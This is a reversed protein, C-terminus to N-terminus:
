GIASTPAAAGNPAQTSPRRAVLGLREQVRRRLRAPLPSPWDLERALRRRHEKPLSRVWQYPRLTEDLSKSGFPPPEKMRRFDAEYVTTFCVTAKPSHAHSLRARKITEFYVTDCIPGLQRPMMTWRGLLPMARRTFLLCSTDVHTRGDNQVDDFMYSGDPRHMTRNSTCVIAKTAQHLLALTEIHNPHFWNDADLFAVADYGLAFASLAGLCRPTNGNDAHARPLKVHSVKWFDMQARPHGDSVFFHDCPCTQRLVSDHCRELISLEEKYYPTIVAVRLSGGMAWGGLFESWLAQLPTAKADFQVM